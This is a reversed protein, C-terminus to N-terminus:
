ARADAPAPRAAAFPLTILLLFLMLFESDGFNYEFLGAALMAVSAAMGGAALWRQRDARFLRTLDTLLLAVFAIWIALAPLGREAAIQLPVNHLHPPDKVVAQPRRYAAYERKLMDPGIGTWPHDRVIEEGAQLMAIRDVNSNDQRDFISYVRSVVTGPALALFIGLGLPMLALLRFDRLVLLLPLAFLMGVWANRTLTVALAAVLAPLLLAPWTRGDRAFLIRALAICIVLMTLGAFTMYLGLTSTPRLGLQSDLQDYHLAAYQFIGYAASIGGATMIATAADAALHGVLLDYTAPVILLLVLQKCDMLSARPDSARAAAILTVVAYAVLLWAFRPASPMRKARVLLIVWLILSIALLAQAVAISFQLAIGVGVLGLV